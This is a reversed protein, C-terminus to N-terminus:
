AALTENGPQELGPRPWIKSKVAVDLADLFSGDVSDPAPAGESTVSWRRTTGEVHAHLAEMVAAIRPSNLAGLDPESGIVELTTVTAEVIGISAQAPGAEVQATGTGPGTEERLLSM